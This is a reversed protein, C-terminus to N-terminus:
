LIMELPEHTIFEVCARAPDPLKSMLGVLDPDSAIVRGNKVAVWQDPYEELLTELNESVWTHDAQFALLENTPQNSM